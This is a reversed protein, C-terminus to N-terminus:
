MGLIESGFCPKGLTLGVVAGIAALGHLEEELPEDARVLQSMRKMERGGWDISPRAAKNGEWMSSEPMRSCTRGCQPVGYASAFSGWAAVAQLMLLAARLM